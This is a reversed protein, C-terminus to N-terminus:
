INDSSHFSVSDLGPEAVLILGNNIVGKNLWADVLGSLDWQHIGGSADSVFSTAAVAPDFDGGAAAWAEGNDRDIWSAGGGDDGDEEGEVWDNTVRHATM